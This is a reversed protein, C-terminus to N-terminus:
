LSVITLTLQNKYAGVLQNALGNYVVNIVTNSLNYSGMGSGAATNVITRLTNLTLWGEAPTDIGSALGSIVGVQGSNIAIADNNINNSGAAAISLRNCSSTITWGTGNGRWDQMNVVALNGYSNAASGVTIDPFTVQAMSDINLAGALINQWLQVNVVTAAMINPIGFSGVVMMFMFAVVLTAAIKQKIKQKKTQM